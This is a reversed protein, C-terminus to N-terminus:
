RLSVQLSGAIGGGSPYVQWGFRSPKESRMRRSVTQGVLFGIASGAAVDTLHHKREEMRTSSVYAAILYSPIAAKWGYHEAVVTAFMFSQVAHGSPFGRHDQGDPRLRHFGYKMPETIAPTMIMGQVLSYSLSRFKRDKSKRSIGFLAASAGSLTLANGIYKGPDSWMGWMEGRSFHRELQQEPATAIATMATGAVLPAISQKNILGLFNGGLDKLFEGATLHHDPDAAPNLFGSSPQGQLPSLLFLLPLLM